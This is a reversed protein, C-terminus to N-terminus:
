CCHAKLGWVAAELGGIIDFWVAFGVFFLCSDGNYMNIHYALEM